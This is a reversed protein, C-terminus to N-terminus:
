KEPRREPQNLLFFSAINPAITGLLHERISMEISDFDQIQEQPTDKFLLKAVERLHDQLQEQEQENM